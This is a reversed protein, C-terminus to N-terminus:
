RKKPLSDRGVISKPWQAATGNLFLLQFHGGVARTSLLFRNAAEAPV